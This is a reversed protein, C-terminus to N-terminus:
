NNETTETLIKYWKDISFCTSLLVCLIACCVASWDVKKGRKFKWKKKVKFLVFMQKRQVISEADVGDDVSHVNYM